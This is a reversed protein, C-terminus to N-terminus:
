PSAALQGFDGDVVADAAHVHEALAVQGAFALPALALALALARARVRLRSGLGPGGALLLLLSLLATLPATEVHLRLKRRQVGPGPRQWRAASRASCCPRGKLPAEALALCVCRLPPPPWSRTM